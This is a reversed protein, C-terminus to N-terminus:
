KSESSLAFDITNSGSTVEKRLGSESVSAYKAPTILTSQPMGDQTKPQTIKRVSIGVLYTGPAVGEQSGTNLSYRGTEDIIGVAPAGGGQERYFSVTGYNESGGVVPQSNFTVTGSVSALGNGCGVVAALALSATLLNLYRALM